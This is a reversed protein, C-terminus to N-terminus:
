AFEETDNLDREPLGCYACEHENRINLYSYSEDVYGGQPAGCFECIDTELFKHVELPPKKLGMLRFIEFM